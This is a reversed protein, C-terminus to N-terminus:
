GRFGARGGAKLLQARSRKGDRVVCLVPKYWSQDQKETLNRAIRKGSLAPLDAQKAPGRELIKQNAAHRSVEPRQGCGVAGGRGFSCPATSARPSRPLNDFAIAVVFM